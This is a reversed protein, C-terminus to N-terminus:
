KVILKMLLALLLSFKRRYSSKKKRSNSKDEGPWGTTYQKMGERQREVDAFANPVPLSFPYSGANFLM